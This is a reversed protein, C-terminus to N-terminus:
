PEFGKALHRLVAGLAHVDTATTIPGGEVQEPAAYGPTLARMWTRTAEADSDLLKAIGFDLLVPVGADTVLLNGPKIDRHVVLNRHAHAVAECVQVLLRVRGAVDVARTSCYADIHAGEVLQMALYPTGDEAVGGDVLAAIHPHRLSALVRREQE